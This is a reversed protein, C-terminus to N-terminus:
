VIRGNPDRLVIPPVGDLIPSHAGTDPEDGTENGAQGEPAPPDPLPTDGLVISGHGPLFGDLIQDAQVRPSASKNKPPTSAM